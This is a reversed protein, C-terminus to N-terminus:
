NDKEGVGLAAPFRDLHRELMLHARETDPVPAVLGQLHSASLEAMGGEDSLDLGFSTGADGAAARFGLKIQPASRM